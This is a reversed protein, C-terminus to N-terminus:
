NELGIGGSYLEPQLNPNGLDLNTNQSASVVGCIQSIGQWVTLQIQLRIVAPLVQLGWGARLKLFNIGNKSTIDLIGKFTYLCVQVQTPLATTLLTQFGTM